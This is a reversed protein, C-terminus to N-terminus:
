ASRQIIGVVPESRARATAIAANSDAYDLPRCPLSQVNLKDRIRRVQAAAGIAGLRRHRSRGDPRLRGRRRLRAPPVAGRCADRSCRSQLVRGPGGACCRPGIPSPLAVCYTIESMESTGTKAAPRRCILGDARTAPRCRRFGNAVILAKGPSPAGSDLHFQARQDPPHARLVLKPSRWADV